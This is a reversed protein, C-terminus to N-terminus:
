PNHMKTRQSIGEGAKMWNRREGERHYSATLWEM